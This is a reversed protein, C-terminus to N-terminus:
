HGAKQAEADLFRRLEYCFRPWAPEDELILHNRSDLPVFRANPISMALHRGEAFTVLADNLCHFVITPVAIKGLLASVDTDGRVDRIRMANEPSTTTRQLDNLWQMQEPTGDPLFLSTFVQRFAPNDQSWGHKILTMLADYRELQEQNSRKRWGRAYGGYLVLNRVREPHRVAYAISVACGQSIGFLTFRDLGVTDVVTELDRLSAEFSIEAVDWDSLGNGRDDYRILTNKRSLEVLWHRWVPSQWEFELHSLWNPAKVIPAGAGVTGYALQVGDSTRCFRIEQEPPAETSSASGAGVTGKTSSLAAAADEIGGRGDRRKADGRRLAMEFRARSEEDSGTKLQSASLARQQKAEEPRGAAELLAILDAHAEPDLPSVQLLTRAVPIAKEPTVRLGDVLKRLIDAHLRRAAEREAILWAQYGHCDPLDLGELLEGRFAAAMAQLAEVSPPSAGDGFASRVDLIDIQSGVRDFGVGERDAVIRPVDNEDVLGRLKSLSWRLAGRPDDPIDWLMECLRERRHRRGELALYGLLARTKRSPPLELSRGDRVVDIPGLLNIAILKKAGDRAGRGGTRVFSLSSCSYPRTDRIFRGREVVCDQRPRAHGALATRGAGFADAGPPRLTVSEISGM